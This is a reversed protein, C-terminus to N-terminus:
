LALDLELRKFVEEVTSKWEASYDCIIGMVVTKTQILDIEVKDDDLHFVFDPNELFFPYKDKMNMFHINERKIGLRNTVRYLDGNFSSALKLDAYARTDEYRSTVIHVEHGAKILLKAIHQVSRRSLTSDFDFSFKM